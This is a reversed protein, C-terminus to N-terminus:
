TYRRQNHGESHNTNKPPQLSRLVDTFFVFNKALAPYIIQLMGQQVQWQGYLMQFHMWSEDMFLVNPFSPNVPLRGLSKVSLSNDGKRLYWIWWSIVSPFSQVWISIFIPKWIGSISLLLCCHQWIVSPKVRCMSQRKETDRSNEGKNQYAQSLEPKPFSLVPCIQCIHLTKQISITWLLTLTLVFVLTM